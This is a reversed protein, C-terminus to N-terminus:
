EFHIDFAGESIKSALTMAVPTGDESYVVAGILGLTEWYRCADYIEQLTKQPLDPEVNKLSNCYALADERRKFGSKTKKIPIKQHTKDEPLKYGDVIQAIWYRHVPDYYACGTGNGRSKTRRKKTATLKKGCWPCFIAGQVVEEKCKTCIM